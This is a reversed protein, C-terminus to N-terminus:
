RIPKPRFYRHQIFPLQCVTVDLIKGRQECALQIGPTILDALVYAMAVPKQLSAGFSGSSIYGAKNGQPDVLDSGERLISKGTTTIGVRYHEAGECIQFQTRKAGLYNTRHKAVLWSLSAEVVTTETSLEHGYLCLGAELRLSDRAGLGIPQVEAHALLQQALHCANINAVSIEFGDEGTYGSRSITCPIHNITTQRISMFPMNSLQTDYQELVTVAKPGQLAILAQDPQFEVHCHHPLHSKLHQLVIYKREANVILLLHSGLNAIVLDDIIGGSKNTLVTYRQQGTPLNQIDSPILKELESASQDGTLHIQGMHSIDFLGAHSRTHLHEKIIGSPYHLPMAYGSFATIKAQLEIHLSHLATKDIIDM